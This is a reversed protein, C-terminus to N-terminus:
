GIPDVDCAEEAQGWFDEAEIAAEEQERVYKVEQIARLRVLAREDWGTSTFHGNERAADIFDITMTEEETAIKALGGPM